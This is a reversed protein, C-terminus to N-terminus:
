KNCYKKVANYKEYMDDAETLCEITCTEIDYKCDKCKLTLLRKIEEKMMQIREEKYDICVEEKFKDCESIKVVICGCEKNAM